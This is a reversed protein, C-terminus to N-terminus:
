RADAPMRAAPSAASRRHGARRRDTTAPTGADSRRGTASAPTRMVAGVGAPLRSCARDWATTNSVYPSASTRCVISTATASGPGPCTRTRTRAAPTCGKSASNRLPAACCHSGARKGWRSPLSNAPSTSVTPGSTLAHDGPSTTSPQAMSAEYASCTMTPTSSITALGCAIGHTSAPTSEADPCVAAVAISNSATRSWSTSKSWAAAPPTPVNATCIAAARPAVTM